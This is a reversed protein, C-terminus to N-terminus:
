KFVVLTPITRSSVSWNNNILNSSFNGAHNYCILSFSLHYHTHTHTHRTKFWFQHDFWILDCFDKNGYMCVHYCPCCYNQCWIHWLYFCLVSINFFFIVHIAFPAHFGFLSILEMDSVCQFMWTYTFTYLQALHLQAFLFFLVFVFDLYFSFYYYMNEFHYENYSVNFGHLQTTIRWHCWLMEEKWLLQWFWFLYWIM